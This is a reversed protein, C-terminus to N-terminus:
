CAVVNVDAIWACTGPGAIDSGGGGVFSRFGSANNFHGGGVSSEEESAINNQGRAETLSGAEGKAVLDAALKDVEGRVTGEPGIKATGARTM